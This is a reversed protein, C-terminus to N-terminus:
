GFYVAFIVLGLVIRYWAFPAFGHTALFRLLARVVVLATLFAGIFGVAILGWAEGHMHEANKWLDYVVAMMMIPMALFFSFEAAAKREVGLMLATMVTAGSRSVGPILAMAQGFGIALATRWRMDEVALVKPAPKYKEILLIVVGGMVLAWAVVPPHYLAQKIFGYFALGMVVAPVVGAVMALTFQQQPGPKWSHLLLDWVRARYIWMVALIAGLQIAVEFVRGEPGKFHLLDILLILHGTSSIPLFESLGEVVGLLAAQLWTNDLM